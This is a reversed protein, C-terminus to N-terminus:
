NCVPYYQLISRYCRNFAKLNPVNLFFDSKLFAKSKYMHWLKWRLHQTQGFSAIVESLDKLNDAHTNVCIM